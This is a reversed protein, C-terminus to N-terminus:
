TQVLSRIDIGISSMRNALDVARDARGEAFSERCTLGGVVM